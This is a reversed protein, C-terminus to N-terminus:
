GDEDQSDLGLRNIEEQEIRLEEIESKTAKGWENLPLELTECIASLMEFMTTQRFGLDYVTGMSEELYELREVITEKEEM